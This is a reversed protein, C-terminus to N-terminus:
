EEWGIEKYKALVEESLTLEKKIDNINSLLEGAATKSIAASLLKKIEDIALDMVKTTTLGCLEYNLRTDTIRQESIAGTGRAVFIEAVCIEYVTSNRTLNPAKPSTSPTGKLIFLDTNRNEMTDDHRVVVRDIRDLSEEAAQVVLTRGESAFGGSKPEDDYCFIGRIRGMGPSVIVSMGAGPTVKWFDGPYVGDTWNAANEIRHDKAGTLRDWPPNNGQNFISQYPFAKM